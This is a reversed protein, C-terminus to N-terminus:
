KTQSFINLAKILQKFEPADTARRDLLQSDFYNEYDFETIKHEEDVFNVADAVWSKGSLEEFLEFERQGRRPESGQRRKTLYFPLALVKKKDSPNMGILDVKSKYEHLAKQLEQIM